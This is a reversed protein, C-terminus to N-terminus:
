LFDEKQDIPQFGRVRAPGEASAYQVLFALASL